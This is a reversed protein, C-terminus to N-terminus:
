PIKRTARYIKLCAAKNQFSYDALAGGRVATQIALVSDPSFEKEFDRCPYVIWRVPSVAMRPWEFNKKLGSILANREALLSGKVGFFVTNSDIEAMSQGSHWAIASALQYPALVTESWPWQRLLSLVRQFNPDPKGLAPTKSWWKRHDQPMQQPSLFALHYLFRTPAVLDPLILLALLAYQWAKPKLRSWVLVVVLIMAVHFGTFWKIIDWTLRYSVFQVIALSQAAYILLFCLVPDFRRRLQLGAFAAFPLTLFVLSGFTALYWLLSQGADIPVKHGWTANRLYGPIAHFVLSGGSYAPHSTLFGGMALALAVSLGALLGTEAATRQWGQKELLARIALTALSVTLLSAFFTVQIIALAGLVLACLGLLWWGRAKWWRFFLTLYAFFLPFGLSYPTMFFNSVTGPNLHRGFVIYSHPWILNKADTAHPALWPELLYAWGAGLMTWIMAIGSFGRSLGAERCFVYLNALTLVWGLGQTVDIARHAPLGTLLGVLAGFVDAGFHYKLPVEPFAELAPPLNGRLISEILPLHAQIMLQDHFAFRTAVRIAMWSSFLFVALIAVLEWSLRFPSPFAAKLGAGRFWLFVAAVGCAGGGLLFASELDHTLRGMLVTAM